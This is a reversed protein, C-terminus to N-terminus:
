PGQAAREPVTSPLHAEKLRLAHREVIWWSAVALPATAAVSLLAYPWYGWRNAGWIALLQQMPFAYIYIGYSYDNRAGVRHFPLHIGLWLLPYAFFVATINMSTLTFAPIGNGVPVALGILGLLVCGWALGGSDPIENRYLYLLSGVLFVPVLTLMNMLDWNNSADVTANLHPVSTIVIEVIWVGVAIAAVVGRRRLLGALSFAALM